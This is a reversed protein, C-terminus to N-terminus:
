RSFLKSALLSISNLDSPSFYLLCIAPHLFSAALLSLSHWSSLSVKLFYSFSALSQADSDSINLASTLFTLSVSYSSRPRQTESKELSFLASWAVMKCCERVISSSSSIFFPSIASLALNCLMSFFFVSQSFLLSLKKFLSHFSILLNSFTM